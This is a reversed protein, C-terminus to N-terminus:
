SSPTLNTPNTETAGTPKNHDADPEPTQNQSPVPESKLTEQIRELMKSPSPKTAKALVTPLPNVARSVGLANPTTLVGKEILGNTVIKATEPVLGFHKALQDPSCSGTKRVYHASWANIFTLETGSGVAAAAAPLSKTLSAVPVLPALGFAALSRTFDRRNM